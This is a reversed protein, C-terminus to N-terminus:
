TQTQLHPAMSLTRERPARLRKVEGKKEIWSRAEQAVVLLILLALGIVSAVALVITSPGVISGPFPAELVREETGKANQETIISPALKDSMSTADAVLDPTPAQRIEVDIQESPVQTDYRAKLVTYKTKLAALKAAM